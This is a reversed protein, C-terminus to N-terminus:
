HTEKSINLENQEILVFKNEVDTSFCLIGTSFTNIQSGYWLHTVINSFCVIIASVCILTCHCCILKLYLINGINYQIWHWRMEFFFWELYHCSIRQMEFSNVKSTQVKGDLGMQDLQEMLYQVQFQANCILIVIVECVHALRVNKKENIIWKILTLILLDISM